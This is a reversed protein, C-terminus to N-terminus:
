FHMSFGINSGFSSPYTNVTMNRTISTLTGRFMPEIFIGLNNRMKYEIGAGILYGINMKNLSNIHNVVIIESNDISVKAKEQLIFNASFGATAYFNFKNKAINYRVLLPMTLSQFSQICHSTMKISDGENLIGHGENPMLIIGNSTPYEFHLENNADYKAYMVPLTISYKMKSYSIGSSISWKNTLNYHVSLGTTFSFQSKERNRYMARDDFNDDTNDKLHSMSYNPSYFAAISFRSKKNIRGKKLLSDNLAFQLSVSKNTDAFALIVNNTITTALVDQATSNSIVSDNTAKVILTSSNSETINENSVSTININGAITNQKEDPMLKKNPKKSTKFSTTLQLTESYIIKHNSKNHNSSTTENKNLSADLNESQYNSKPNTPPHDFDPLANDNTSNLLNPGNTLNKNTSTPAIYHCTMFSFLFLALSISLLKFRNAKQKYVVAQKKDLDADLKDWASDPADMKLSEFVARSVKEIDKNEEM